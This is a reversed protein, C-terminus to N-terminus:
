KNAARMTDARTSTSLASLGTWLPMAPPMNRIGRQREVDDQRPQVPIIALQRYRVKVIFNTREARELPLGNPLKRPSSTLHRRSSPTNGPTRKAVAVAHM